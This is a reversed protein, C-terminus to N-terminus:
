FKSVSGATESKPHWFSELNFRTKGNGSWTSMGKSLMHWLGEPTTAIGSFRCSLGVIAIPEDQKSKLGPM